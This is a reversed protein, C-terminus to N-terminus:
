KPLQNELDKIRLDQKKITQLNTDTDLQASYDEITQAMINSKSKVELAYQLVAVNFVISIALGVAPIADKFNQKTM